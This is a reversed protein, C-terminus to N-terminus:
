ELLRSVRLDLEIAMRGAQNYKHTVMEVIALVKSFESGSRNVARLLPIEVAEGRRPLVVPEEMCIYNQLHEEIERFSLHWNLFVIM